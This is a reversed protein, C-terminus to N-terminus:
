RFPLDLGNENSFDDYNLDDSDKSLQDTENNGIEDWLFYHTWDEEADENRTSSSEAANSEFGSVNEFTLWDDGSRKPLARNRKGEEFAAGEEESLERYPDLGQSRVHEEWIDLDHRVSEELAKCHCFVGSAGFPCYGGAEHQCITVHGGKVASWAVTENQMAHRLASYEQRDSLQPPLSSWIRWSSWLLHISAVLQAVQADSLLNEPPFAEAPIAYIVPLHSLKTAALGTDNEDGTEYESFWDQEPLQSATQISYEVDALLQQLYKVM